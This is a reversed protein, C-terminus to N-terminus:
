KLRAAKVNHDAVNQHTRVNVVICTDFGQGFVEPNLHCGIGCNSWPHVTISGKEMEANPVSLQGFYEVVGLQNPVHLLETGQRARDVIRRLIIDRATSPVSVAVDRRVTINVRTNL